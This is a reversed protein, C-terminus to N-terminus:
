TKKATISHYNSQCREMCDCGLGSFNQTQNKSQHLTRLVVKYLLTHCHSATPPQNEVPVGSKKMFLTSCLLMASINNFTVKFM